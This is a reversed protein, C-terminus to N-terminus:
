GVLIDTPYMYTNELTEELQQIEEMAEDFLQQGNLEVGGLMQVGSFKKLNEGWQRKFLATTYEKLWKDNYVAVVEEPDILRQVQVGLKFGVGVDGLEAFIKLKRAHRSFNITPTMTTMQAISEYNTVKMYYDLQDFPSWPSLESLALQYQYSFMNGQAIVENFPLITIVELINSPITVYGNDIDQQSVEYFVWDNETADFHKEQYTELAEDIRDDLQTDDVNINIVPKGLKRLCYEKLEARSAVAM